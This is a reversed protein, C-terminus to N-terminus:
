HPIPRLEHIKINLPVLFCPSIKQLRLYVYKSKRPLSINNKDGKSCIAENGRDQVRILLEASTNEGRPDGVNEDKEEGPSGRPPIKAEGIGQPSANM